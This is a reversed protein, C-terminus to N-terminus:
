SNEVDTILYMQCLGPCGMRLTLCWFSLIDIPHIALMNPKSESSSSSWVGTAADVTGTATDGGVLERGIARLSEFAFFGTSFVWVIAAASPLINVLVCCTAIM